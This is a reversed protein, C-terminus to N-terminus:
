YSGSSSSHCHSVLISVPVRWRFGHWLHMVCQPCLPGKSKFRCSKLLYYTSSILKVKLSCSIICKQYISYVICILWLNLWDVVWIYTPLLLGCIYVLPCIMYLDIAVLLWNDVPLSNYFRIKLQCPQYVAQWCVNKKCNVKLRCNVKLWLQSTCSKARCFFESLVLFKVKPPITMFKM